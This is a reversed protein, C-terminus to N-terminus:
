TCRFHLVREESCFAKRLSALYLSQAFMCKPTLLASKLERVERREKMEGNGGPKREERRGRDGGCDEEVRGKMKEEVSKNKLM